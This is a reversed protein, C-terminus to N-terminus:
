SHCLPMVWAPYSLALSCEQTEVQGVIFFSLLKDQFIHCARRLRPTKNDGRSVFFPKLLYCRVSFGQLEVPFSVRRSVTAQELLYLCLCHPFPVSHDRSLKNLCSFDYLSVLFRLCTTDFIQLCQFCELMVYESLETYIAFM